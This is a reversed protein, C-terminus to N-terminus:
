PGVYYTDKFEKVFHMNQAETKDGVTENFKYAKTHGDVFLYNSMDKHRLKSMCSKWDDVPAYGDYGQHSLAEDREEGAPLDEGGRESVIINRSSNKLQSSKKDYGYMCNIMYSQRKDVDADFGPRVAPDGPCFLFNRKMGFPYLYEFWKVPNPEGSIGEEGWAGGHHIPPFFSQWDNGYGAFALGCQKLNNMCQTARAKERASNLAPLLMGALIAIIAIVVLLEILTFKNISKMIKEQFIVHQIFVKEM